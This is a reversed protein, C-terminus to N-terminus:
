NLNVLYDIFEMVCGDGGNRTSIMDVINKCSINADNPCASIAVEKLVEIDNIDDGMYAVNKEISIKLEHCWKQLIQLKHHSGLHIFDIKLRKLINLQSKNEQFGSIVGTKINKERLLNLHTSDKCNYFKIINGQHDIGVKGDSFVGDFDFVVLKIEKDLKM